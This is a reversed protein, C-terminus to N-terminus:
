LSETFCFRLERVEISSACDVGDDCVVNVREDKTGPHDQLLINVGVATCTGHRVGNVAGTDVERPVFCIGRCVRVPLRTLMVSVDVSGLLESSVRIDLESASAQNHEGEDGAAVVSLYALEPLWWSCWSIKQRVPVSASRGLRPARAREGRIRRCDVELM